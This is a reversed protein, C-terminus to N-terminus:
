GPKPHPRVRSQGPQKAQQQLFNIERQNLLRYHGLPLQELQIPGISVRHLCVVPHGFQEALRRIQRNRGEQLIIELLTQNPPRTALVRVVAPRTLRGDLLVGNRWQQLIRTSPNGQLWVHYVKTISHSPHTLSFTVDGDNTLLLAGTSAVDLRGVTHLGSDDRLEAPLLDLVTQRNQPDSCTSVVGRPKNLLLYIPQPRDSPQILVGDIEIRDRSPDAKQGLEAPSGNLRVRGALIMQEAQRRSAIGWQAIIKQVRESM